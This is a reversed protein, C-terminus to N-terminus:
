RSRAPSLRKREKTIAVRWRIEYDLATLCRKHKKGGIAITRAGPKGCETCVAM